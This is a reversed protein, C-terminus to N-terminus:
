KFAGVLTAHNGGLGSKFVSVGKANEDNMGGLDLSSIGSQKLIKIMEFILRNNAHLRRGRDSVFGIQWTASPGHEFTIAGAIDHGDEQAIFVHLGNNKFFVDIMKEILKRPPIPYGRVRADQISAFLVDQAASRNHSHIIHLNSNKEARGLYQRWNKRLAARIQDLNKTLDIWITQYPKLRNRLRFGINLFEVPAIPLNGTISQSQEPIFRRQRWFRRPYKYDIEKWFFKIDNSSEPVNFWVPGRDIMVAQVNNKWFGSEFIQVIGISDGTKLHRIVAWKPRLSLIAAMACAYEYSQTLPLRKAQMCLNRWLPLSLPTFDLTINNLKENSVRSFRNLYYSRFIRFM